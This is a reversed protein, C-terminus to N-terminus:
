PLVVFRVANTPDATEDEFPALMARIQEASLSPGHISSTLEISSTLSGTVITGWAMNVPSLDLGPLRAIEELRGQVASRSPGKLAVQVSAM